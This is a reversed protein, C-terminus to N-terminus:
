QPVPLLGVATLLKTEEFCDWEEIIKGESWRYIAIGTYDLKNGTAPSGAFEGTHTGRVTYRVVSQDGEVVIDDILLQPDTLAAQLEQISTKLGEPGPGIGAAGHYTYDPHIIDDAVALDGTEIAKYIREIKSQYESRSM